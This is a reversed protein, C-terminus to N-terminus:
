FQFSVNQNIAMVIEYMMFHFTERGRLNRPSFFVIKKLMWILHWLLNLDLM